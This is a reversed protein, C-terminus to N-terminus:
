MLAWTGAVIMIIGTVAFPCLRGKVILKMREPQSMPGEIVPNFLHEEQLKEYRISFAHETEGIFVQYIIRDGKKEMEGLSMKLPGFTGAVIRSAKDASAFSFKQYGGRIDIEGELDTGCNYKAWLAHGKISGFVKDKMFYLDVGSGTIHRTGEESALSAFPIVSLAFAALCCLQFHIQFPRRRVPM